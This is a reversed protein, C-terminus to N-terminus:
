FKELEPFRGSRVASPHLDAHFGKDAFKAHLIEWLDKLPPKSLHDRHNAVPELNYIASRKEADHSLLRLAVDVLVCALKDWDYVGMKIAGAHFLIKRIDEEMRGKELRVAEDRSFTRGKDPRVLESINGEALFILEEAIEQILDYSNRLTDAM